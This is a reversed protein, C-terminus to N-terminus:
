NGGLFHVAPRRRNQTRDGGAGKRTLEANCGIALRQEQGVVARSGDFHEVDVPKRDPWSDEFRLRCRGTKRIWAFDTRGAMKPYRDADSSPNGHACTLPWAPM